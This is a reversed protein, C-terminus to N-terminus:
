NDPSRLPDSIATVNRSQGCTCGVTFAEFAKVCQTAKKVKKAGRVKKVLVQRVYKVEMCENGSTMELCRRCACRVEVVTEPIRNPDYNLILYGPCTSKTVHGISGMRKFGPNQEETFYLM